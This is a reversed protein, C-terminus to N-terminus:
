SQAKVFADDHKNETWKNVSIMLVNRVAVPHDENVLAERTKWGYSFWVGVNQGNLEIGVYPWQTLKEGKVYACRCAASGASTCIKNNNNNNKTKNKQIAM